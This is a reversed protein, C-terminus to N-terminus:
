PEFFDDSDVQRNGVGGRVRVAGIFILFLYVVFIADWKTLYHISNHILFTTGAIVFSVITALLFSLRLVAKGAYLGVVPIWAPLVAFLGFILHFGWIMFLFGLLRLGVWLLDNKDHAWDFMEDETKKGQLILVFQNTHYNFNTGCNLESMAFGDEVQKPRLTNGMKQAVLTYDDPDIAWYVFKYDGIQPNEPTGKGRFIYEGERMDYSYIAANSAIEDGLCRFTDTAFRTGKRAGHTSPAIPRYKKLERIIGKELRFKGMSLQQPLFIASDYAFKRPNEHGEPYKFRAHNCLTTHWVKHYEYTTSETKGGKHDYHTQGTHKDHQNGEDNHSHKNDKDHKNRRKKKGQQNQQHEETEKRKGDHEGHPPHERKEDRQKVGETEDYKSKNKKKIEAWQYMKVQRFLGLYKGQVNFLNDKLLENTKIQEHYLVLKENADSKNVGNDILTPQLKILLKTTKAHNIEGYILLWVAIAICVLGLPISWVARQVRQSWSLHEEETINDM